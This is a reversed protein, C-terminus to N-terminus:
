LCMPPVPVLPSTRLFREYGLGGGLPDAVPKDGPLTEVTLCSLPTDGGLALLDLMDRLEATSWTATGHDIPSAFGRAHQTWTNVRFRAERRDLLVNRRDGGDAQVYQAYLLVWLQTHPPMPRLSRRALVPNAFAANVEIGIRHRVVECRLTPAPHQVGTVRLARGFRGQATSWGV